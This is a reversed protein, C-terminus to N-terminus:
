IDEAVTSNEIIWKGTGMGSNRNAVESMKVEMEGNCPILLEGNAGGQMILYVSASADGSTGKEEIIYFKKASTGTVIM